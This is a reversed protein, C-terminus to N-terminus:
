KKTRSRTMIGDKSISKNREESAVQPSRSANRKYQNTTKTAAKVSRTFPRTENQETIRTEMDVNMNHEKATKVKTYNTAGPTKFLRVSRTTDIVKKTKTELKPKTEMESRLKTPPVRLDFQVTKFTPSKIMVADVDNKPNEISLEYMIKSFMEVFFMKKHMLTLIEQDITAITNLGANEHPVSLYAFIKVFPDSDFVNHRVARGTVQQLYAFNWSPEVIHLQRTNRFTFGTAAAETIICIKIIDGFQNDKSNYTEIIRKMSGPQTKGEIVAFYASFGDNNKVLDVEYDENNCAQTQSKVQTNSSERNKREKGWQEMNYQEKMIRALYRVTDLSKTHILIPSPKKQFYLIAEEVVRQLKEKSNALKRAVILNNGAWSIVDRTKESTRLDCMRKYDSESLPVQIPSALRGQSHKNKIVNSNTHTPKAIIGRFDDSYDYYHQTFDVEPLRLDGMDHVRVRSIFGGTESLLKRICEKTKQITHSEVVIQKDVMKMDLKKCDTENYRKPNGSLLIMDNLLAIVDDPANITPTGTMFFIYRFGQFKHIIDMFLGKGFVIKTPVHSSDKIVSGAKMVRVDDSDQNEEVDDDGYGAIKTTSRFNHAEDVIIVSKSPDFSMEEKSINNYQNYTMIHYIKSDYAFHLGKTKQLSRYVEPLQTRNIFSCILKFDNAFQEVLFANPVLIIVHEIENMQSMVKILSTATCTKGSGMEHYFLGYRIKDKHKEFFSSIKLQHSKYQAVQQAIMINRKNRDTEALFANVTASDYHELGLWKLAINYSFPLVKRLIELKENDSADRCNDFIGKLHKNAWPVLIRSDIDNTDYPPVLGTLVYGIRHKLAISVYEPTNQLHFSVVGDCAYVKTYTSGKIYRHRLAESVRDILAVRQTCRNDVATKVVASKAM